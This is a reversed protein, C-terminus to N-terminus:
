WPYKSAGPNSSAPPIEKESLVSVRPMVSFRSVGFLTSKFENDSEVQVKVEKDSIADKLIASGTLVGKSFLALYANPHHRAASSLVNTAAEDFVFLFTNGETATKVAVLHGAGVEPKEKV